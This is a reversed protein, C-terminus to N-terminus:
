RLCDKEKIQLATFCNLKAARLAQRYSSWSGPAHSTSDGKDKGSILECQVRQGVNIQNRRIEHNDVFYFIIQAIFAARCM